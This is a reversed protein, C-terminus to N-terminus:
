EICNTTFQNKMPGRYIVTVQGKPDDTCISDDFTIEQGMASWFRQPVECGCYFVTDVQTPKVSLHVSEANKFKEIYVVNTSNYLQKFSRYGNEIVTNLSDGNRVNWLPLDCGDYVIGSSPRKCTIEEGCRDDCNCDNKCRAM